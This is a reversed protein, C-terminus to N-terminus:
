WTPMGVKLVVTPPMYMVESQSSCKWHGSQRVLPGCICMTSRSGCLPEDPANLKGLGVANGHAARIKSCHQRVPQHFSTRVAAFGFSVRPKVSEREALSRTATSKFLLPPLELFQTESTTYGGHLRTAPTEPPRHSRWTTEATIFVFPATKGGEYLRRGLGHVFAQLDYGLEVADRAFASPTAHRTTKLDFSIDPHYADLRIRLRLGTVPETFYITAECIAEEIFRGLPRGKRRRESVKAALRRAAAFTPEDM